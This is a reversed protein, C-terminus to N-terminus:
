CLPTLCVSHVARLWGQWILCSGTLVISSETLSLPYESPLLFTMGIAGPHLSEEGGGGGTM